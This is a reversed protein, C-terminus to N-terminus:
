KGAEGGGQKEPKDDVVQFEQTRRDKRGAADVVMVELVYDGPKLRSLQLSRHTSVRPTTAQEQFKLRIAAGGGGFIKHFLGGGGAKKKVALEVTYPTPQLGDIEYYLEMEESRRYTRLPNLLVTDDPTRRWSLNADRSGLALDSLSLSSPTTPGVRVSDKPLTVGAAEGQQLALRYHLSGPVVTTSVRGVLHETPPVPAPAVFYRTTDLSSVVRGREDTAVFRLRVSYLYGRTVTVPELSSGALAYAIQVQPGNSDHGVALVETRAKLQQPFRLEYSDSTTGIAISEQGVRREQTQYRGTSMRGAGELRRYIPSLRERSLMLQEAMSNDAAGNDQGQLKVANSFGLVDFLSEVLKFDQVDERAIFHFILDGDPRSYRWSENPELGPAAYTARSSPEGHRIYIVGRDDFDRSGSRYREVIDYHRNTTALQFNKRAYFLRRYHERLREGKARMDLLDRSSWFRKLYAARQAGHQQDFEALVSDSAITALDGRYASVTTSDDSAAGEYYPAVGDFSGLLFQTRAVELLGLSHNPGKDLYTKFAALASDADGVEREVRGRALLVEPDNGAATKGARRLAELAVGLKINVRQRLATNALDVLGRVFGPDVEASKAFAVASRTLADKGLMTKLGTVFSVQSDGVGYEALGMGYWSYPWTPQLDIAWQFESAADDYHSHGGMEGLKLSVFGLKLHLYTNNRDAKASDILHKELVLLGNSDSTAALSDRFHELALRQDPSQARAGLPFGIMLVLSAAASKLLTSRILRPYSM